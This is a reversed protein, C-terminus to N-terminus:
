AVVAEAGEGGGEGGGEASGGAEGGAEGGTLGMAAEYAAMAEAYAAIQAESAPPAGSGPLHEERELPEGASVGSQRLWAFERAARKQRKQRLEQKIEEARRHQRKSEAKKKDAGRLVEDNLKNIKVRARQILKQLKAAYSRALKADAGECMAALALLSTLSSSASSMVGRVEFAQSAAVLRATLKGSVDKPRQRTPTFRPKRNKLAQERTLKVAEHHKQMAALSLELRDTNAPAAPAKEGSGQAARPFGAASATHVASDCHMATSDIGM